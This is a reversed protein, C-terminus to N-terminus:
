GKPFGLLGFVWQTGTRLDRYLDINDIVWPGAIHTSPSRQFALLVSELCDVCAENWLGAANRMDLLCIEKNYFADGLLWHEGYLLM